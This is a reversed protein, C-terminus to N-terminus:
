VKGFLCVVYWGIKCGECVVYNIGCDELYIQVMFVIYLGLLFGEVLLILCSYYKEVVFQLWCLKWVKYDFIWSEDFCLFMCKFYLMVYVLVEDVSMFYLVEDVLLYKFLYVIYCGGYMDIFEFNIYEIVGVFLFILDNVNFWYISFFSNNLELVLCVNGLYEICCLQQLYDFSVWDKVMDVILLLVLMVIVYDVVIVGKFM